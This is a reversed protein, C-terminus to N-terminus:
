ISLIRLCYLILQEVGGSVASGQAVSLPSAPRPSPMLSQSMSDFMHRDGVFVCSFYETQFVRINLVEDVQM